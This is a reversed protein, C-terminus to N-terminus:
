RQMVKSAYDDSCFSSLSSTPYLKCKVNTVDRLDLDVTALSEETPHEFQININSMSM